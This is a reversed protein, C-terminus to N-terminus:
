DGDANEKRTRRVFSYRPKPAELDSEEKEPKILSEVVRPMVSADFKVPEPDLEPVEISSDYAFGPYLAGTAMTVLRAEVREGPKIGKVGGPLIQIKSSVNKAYVIEESMTRGGRLTRACLVAEMTAGARWTGPFLAEEGVADMMMIEYGSLHLRLWFRWDVPTKGLDTPWRLDTYRHMVSDHCIFNSGSEGVVKLLGEHGDEFPRPYQYRGIASQDHTKGDLGLWRVRDVVMHCANGDLIDAMRSCRGPLFVDDDCLYSVFQGRAMDLGHNCMVGVMKMTARVKDDYETYFPRVRTDRSAMMDLYAHIRKDQSNDDVVIVELDRYDQSLVSEVAERLLLFRNRSTVIVSLKPRECVM